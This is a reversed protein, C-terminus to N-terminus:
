SHSSTVFEQGDDRCILQVADRGSYLCAPVGGGPMVWQGAMYFGSLGPLTRKLPTRLTEPTMLWGLYSAERNLTYRWTTYPTAVDEMEVQSAIGPYHAELRDLVQAAVEAKRAEYGARDIAQLDHWCDFDTEFEVQVISKGPPAFKSSYNSLRIMFGDITESGAQIPKELRITSFVPEGPFERAVGFSIMTLPRVLEWTTYRRRIGEDTYRGGLLGFITSHGDAASVVVDARHETGDALRIGVARGGQVLVEEVTARYTSQGGLEAYRNEM